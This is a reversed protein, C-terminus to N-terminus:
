ALAPQVRFASPGFTQIRANAFTAQGEAIWFGPEDIPVAWDYRWQGNEPPDVVAAQVTVVVGSPKRIHLEVTAGTLNTAVTSGDAATSYITGTLAPSTDGVTYVPHSM